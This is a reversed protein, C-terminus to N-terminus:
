KINLIENNFFLGFNYLEMNYGEVEVASITLPYFIAFYNVGSQYLNNEKWFLIQLVRAENVSIEEGYLAYDMLSSLSDISQITLFGKYVEKYTEQIKNCLEIMKPNSIRKISNLFFYSLTILTIKEIEISSFRKIKTTPIKQTDLVMCNFYDIFKILADLNNKLRM